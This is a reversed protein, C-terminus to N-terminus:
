KQGKSKYVKGDVGLADRIHQLHSDIVCLEILALVMLGTIIGLMASQSNSQQM